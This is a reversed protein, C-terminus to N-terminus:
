VVRKGMICEGNGMQVGFKKSEDMPLQLKKVVKPSIFNDFAGSDVLVVVGYGKIEGNVELLSNESSFGLITKFTLALTECEKIANGGLANHVTGELVSAETPSAEAIEARSLIEEEDEDTMMLGNFQRNKCRHGFHYKDDCYFCFGQGRRKQAEKKTM